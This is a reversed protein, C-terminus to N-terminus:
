DRFRAESALDDLHEQLALARRIAVKAIWCMKTDRYSGFGGNKILWAFDLELNRQKEEDTLDSYLLKHLEESKLLKHLEESEQQSM